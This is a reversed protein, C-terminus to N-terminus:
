FLLGRGVLFSHWQVRASPFFVSYSTALWLLFSGRLFLSWVIRVITPSDAPPLFLPVSGPLEKGSPKKGSAEVGALGPNKSEGCYPASNSNILLSQLADGLLPTPKEFLFHIKGDECYVCTYSGTVLDCQKTDNVFPNLHIGKQLGLWHGGEVMHTRTILSPADPKAALARVWLAM